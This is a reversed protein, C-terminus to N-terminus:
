PAGGEGEDRRRLITLLYLNFKGTQRHLYRADRHVVEFHRELLEPEVLQKGARHLDARLTEAYTARSIRRQPGLEAIRLLREAVGLPEGPRALNASWPPRNLDKIFRDFEDPFQAIFAADMYTSVFPSPADGYRPDLPFDLVPADSCGQLWDVIALGGPRLLRRLDRLFRPPDTVFFSSRLVTAVDCAGAPMEDLGNLDVPRIGPADGFKDLLTVVPQAPAMAARLWGMAITEQREALGWVDVTPRARGLAGFLGHARECRDLAGTLWDFYPRDSVGL